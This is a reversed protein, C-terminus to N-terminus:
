KLKGTACSVYSIVKKLLSNEGKQPYGMASLKNLLPQIESTTEITIIESAKDIVVNHVGEISLLGSHISNMCGGCKINEVEISYTM